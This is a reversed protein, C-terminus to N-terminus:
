EVLVPCASILKQFACGYLDYFRVSKIILTKLAPLLANEPLNDIRLLTGLKLEVLTKCTFVEFPLSYEDKVWLDLKLEMVGRKLVDCLRRNVQAYNTPNVSNRFCKLSLTRVRSSLPLALVGDLFDTLSEQNEDEDEFEFKDDFELHPIITYLSQWRKSLVTAFAAEKASLFYVIHSIIENPLGSIRDTEKSVVFDIM